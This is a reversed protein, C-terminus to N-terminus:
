EEVDDYTLTFTPMSVTETGDEAVTVTKGWAVKINLTYEKAAEPTFSEVLSLDGSTLTLPVEDSEKTKVTVDTAFKVTITSFSTETEVYESLDEYKFIVQPRNVIRLDKADEGDFLDVEGSGDAKTLTLGNLEFSQSVPSETGAADTPAELSGFMRIKLPTGTEISTNVSCASGCGLALLAGLHRTTKVFIHLTKLTM